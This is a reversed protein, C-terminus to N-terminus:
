AMPTIAQLGVIAQLGYRRIAVSLLCCRPKAQTTKGHQQRGVRLQQQFSRRRGAIRHGALAARALAGYGRPVRGRPLLLLLACATREIRM